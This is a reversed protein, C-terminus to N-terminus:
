TEVQFQVITVAGRDNQLVLDGQLAGCVINKVLGLGVGHRGLALTDRLLATCPCLSAPKDTGHMISYCTQGVIEHPELGSGDLTAKNARVIRCETDLILTADPV